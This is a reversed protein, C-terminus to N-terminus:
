NPTVFPREPAPQKFLRWVAAILVPVVFVALFVYALGRYGQAILTVLGFRAALVMSFLLLVGSIILRPVAGLGRGRRAAYAESVRENLAHACGTGSELLALFIMFQFAAHFAPFNLQRLLFDSPLTQNAIEPIFAIMCIFFLLAPMMALPGALVGALVADRSSGLHRLVPLIIVAGVVNYGAYTLGGLVWNGNTVEPSSLHSGIRNGFAALSLIIFLAYVGYLVFSVWKFLSEVSRTGYACIACICLM